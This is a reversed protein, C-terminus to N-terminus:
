CIAMDIAPVPQVPVEVLYYPHLICQLFMLPFMSQLYNARQCKNQAQAMISVISSALEFSLLLVLNVLHRPHHHHCARMELSSTGEGDDEGDGEGQWHRCCVRM